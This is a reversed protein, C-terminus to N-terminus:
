IISKCICQGVYTENIAQSVAQGLPGLDRHLPQVGLRMVVALVAGHLGDPAMATVSTAHVSPTLLQVTPGPGTIFFMLEFM